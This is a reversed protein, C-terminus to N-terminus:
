TVPIDVLITPAIYAKTNSDLQRKTEEKISAMPMDQTETLLKRMEQVIDEAFKGLDQVTWKNAGDQYLDLTIEIRRALDGYSKALNRANEAREGYRLYRQLAALFSSMTGLTATAWMLGANPSGSSSASSVSTLGTLSSTLLLPISVYNNRRTMAYYMEWFADRRGIADQSFLRLQEVVATNMHELNSM